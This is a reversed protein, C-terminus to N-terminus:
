AEKTTNTIKKLYPIILIIAVTLALVDSVPVAYAIGDVGIMKNMVLMLPIDFGGKRCMSLIMPQLKKGTAQFIAIILFTLSITPCTICIVRLFHQGYRVTEANDIFFQSIPAAGFYLFLTGVLSVILSYVATHLIASKMRKRNNSAFNYGILPLVGQTMGNAIAFALTDIKKAIGMGAIAQTSYSAVLSNLVTNSVIGMFMSLFSPFGVTLIESAIGDSVQYHKPNLTIVMTDGHAKILIIFYCLAVTNSLMTAIAAGSIGLGLVFIFIPDLIINLIGGFAIGFSAQKSYGESRVLHALTANLATPIAGITVTWFLYQHTFQYTDINTGLIPLIIPRFLLIIIGYIFAIIITTFISFASGSKARKPDNKGLSRSIFSAGGIGFLNAVGTLFLFAPMALTAAAVQNPDGLQGIFYTDATNYIVTILQSIITPIVLTLIAKSIKMEEFIYRNSHM